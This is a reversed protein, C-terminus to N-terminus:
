HVQNVIQIIALGVMPQGSESMKTELNEPGLEANGVDSFRIINDGDSKVILDNFQDQTSLNGLTKVILETNAGSVKGSPLEVNQRNLAERIDAVTLGYSALKVPDLWLRDRLGAMSAPIGFPLKGTTM